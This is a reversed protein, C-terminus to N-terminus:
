VRASKVALKSKGMLPHRVPLVDKPDVRRMKVVRETTPVTINAPKLAMVSVGTTHGDGGECLEYGCIYKGGPLDCAGDGGEITVYGNQAVGYKQFCTGNDTGVFYGSAAVDTEVYVTTHDLTRNYAADSVIINRWAITYSGDDAYSGRKNVTPAPLPVPSISHITPMTLPVSSPTVFPNSPMAFPIASPYVHAPNVSHITPSALPVPGEAPANPFYRNHRQYTINVHATMDMTTADQTYSSVISYPYFAVEEVQRHPSDARVASLADTHVSLSEGNTTEVAAGDTLANTNWSSLSGTVEVTATTAAATGTAKTIEGVLKYSHTGTTNWGYGGSSAGSTTNVASGTDM